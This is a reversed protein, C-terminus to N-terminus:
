AQVVGPRVALGAGDCYRRLEDHLKNAESSGIMEQSSDHYDVGCREGYQLLYEGGDSNRMVASAQLTVEIKVDSNPDVRRRSISAYVVRGYVDDGCRLNAILDDISACTVLM